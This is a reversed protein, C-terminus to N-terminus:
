VHSVFLVLSIKQIYTIGYLPSTPIFSNEKLSKLLVHCGRAFTVAVKNHSCNMLCVSLSIQLIHM